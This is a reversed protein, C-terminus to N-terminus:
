GEKIEELNNLDEDETYDIPHNLEYTLCCMLRGCVGSIKSPSLSLNQEKACKVSVPIFNNLFTSCCFERGCGGIGGVMKAEDRVGIQRMEIRTKCRAALDKILERFDVRGNATFYFIVKSNDFLWEVKTLKMTLNHHLAREICFEFAEREKELIRRYQYYDSDTAKRLVKKFCNLKDCGGWELPSSVVIGFKLGKDTEVVVGESKEVEFEDELKFHFTKGNEEFKIDIVKM